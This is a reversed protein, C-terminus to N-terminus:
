YFKPFKSGFGFIVLNWFATSITSTSPNWHFRHWISARPNYKRNKKSNEDIKVHKIAIQVDAMDPNEPNQVLIRFIRIQDINLYSYFMYFYDFIWFYKFFNIRSSGNSMPKMLIWWSARNKCGIPIQWFDQNQPLNGM